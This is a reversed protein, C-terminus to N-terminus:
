RRSKASTTPWSVDNARQGVRHRAVAHVVGVQEDARAARCSSSPWSGRPTSFKRSGARRDLRAADAVGASIAEALESSTIPHVARRRYETSSMTRQAVRDGVRRDRPALLDVDRSRVHERRRGPVGEELRELLRAFVTNTSAVVSGWFTQRRDDIAAVAEVELPRRGLLDCRPRASPSRSDIV